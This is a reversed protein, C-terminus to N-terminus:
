QPLWGGVHAQGLAGEAGVRGDQGAPPDAAVNITIIAQGCLDVTRSPLHQRWTGISNALVKTM